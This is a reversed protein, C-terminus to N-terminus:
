RTLVALYTSCLLNAHREVLRRALRTGRRPGVLALEEAVTWGHEAAGRRCFNRADDLSFFWRHRDTPREVPLGYKGSVPRGRAFNLRMKLEYLNPLTVVVHSSAVRCVEALAGHIDDVHELVDLAVLVDAAGDRLPLGADLDGRLQGSCALDLGVYAVPTGELAAGLEQARCGVDVVTGTWLGDLRRVIAVAKGRSTRDALVLTPLRDAHRLHSRSM